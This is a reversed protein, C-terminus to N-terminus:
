YVKVDKNSVLIPPNINTGSTSESAFTSGPTWNALNESATNLAARKRKELDTEYQKIIEEAEKKEENTIKDSLLLVRAQKVNNPEEENFVNTEKNEVPPTNIDENETTLYMNPNWNEGVKSKWNKDVMDFTAAKIKGKLQDDTLGSKDIMHIDAVKGFTSAVSPDTGMIGVRIFNTDDPHEGIFLNGGKVVQTRLDEWNGADISENIHNLVPLNTVTNNDGLAAKAKNIQNLTNPNHIEQMRKNYQSAAWEVLDTGEKGRASYNADMHWLAKNGTGEFFWQGQDEKIRRKDGSAEAKENFWKMYKIQESKYDPNWQTTGDEPNQFTMFGADSTIEFDSVVAQTNLYTDHQNGDESTISKLFNQTQDGIYKGSNSTNQNTTNLTEIAGGKGRNTVDIGDLEPFLDTDWYKTEEKDSGGWKRTIYMRGDDDYKRTHFSEAVERMLGIKDADKASVNVINPTNGITLPDSTLYDEFIGVFSNRDEVQKQLRNVLKIRQDIYAGAEIGNNHKLEDLAKIQGTIDNIYGLEVENNGANTKLDNIMKNMEFSQQIFRDNEEEQFKSKNWEMSEERLAMSRDYQQQQIDMAKERMAMSQDYQQQQQKMRQDFQVARTVNEASKFLRQKMAEYKRPDYMGARYMEKAGQVLVKDAM